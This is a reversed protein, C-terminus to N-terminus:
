TAFFEREFVVRVHADLIGRMISHNYRDGTITGKESASGMLGLLFAHEYIALGSM